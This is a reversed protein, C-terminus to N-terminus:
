KCLVLITTNFAITKYGSGQFKMIRGCLRRKLNNLTVQYHYMHPTQTHKMRVEVSKDAFLATFKPSQEGRLEFNITQRGNEKVIYEKNPATVIAPHVLNLM